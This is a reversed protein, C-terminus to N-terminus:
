ITKSRPRTQIPAHGQQPVGTKVIHIDTDGHRNAHSTIAQHYAPAQLGSVNVANGHRTRYQPEMDNSSHVFQVPPITSGGRVSLDRIVQRAASAHQMPVVMQNMQQPTIRPRTEEHARPQTSPSSANSMVMFSSHMRRTADEPGTGTLVDGHSALAYRTAAEQVESPATLLQFRRELSLDQTTPPRTQLAQNRELVVSLAGHHENTVAQRSVRGQQTSLPDQPSLNGPMRTVEVHRADRLRGDHSPNFSIGKERMETQSLIGGSMVSRFTGYFERDSALSPMSNARQRRGGPLADPMQRRKERPDAMQWAMSKPLPMFPGGDPAYHGTNSKDFGNPRKPPDGGAGAMAGMSSHSLLPSMEVSHRMPSQIPALKTRFDLSARHHSISDLSGQASAKGTVFPGSNQGSSRLSRKWEIDSM